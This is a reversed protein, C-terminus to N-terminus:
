SVYRQLVPITTNGNASRHLKYSDLSLCNSVFEINILVPRIFLNNDLIVSNLANSVHHSTKSAKSFSTPGARKEAQSMRIVHIKSFCTANDVSVYKSFLVFERTIKILSRAM